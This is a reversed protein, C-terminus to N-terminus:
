EVELMWCNTAVAGLLWLAVLRHHGDHIKHVGDHYVVNPNPYDPKEVKGISGLHWLVTERSVYRQTAVLNEIPFLSLTSGAWAETKVKPRSKVTWPVAIMGPEEDPIGDLIAVATDIADRRIKVLSGSVTKQGGWHPVLQCGCNPHIPPEEILEDLKHPGSLELGACEDCVTPGHSTLWDVWFVPQGTAPDVRVPGGAEPTVTAQQERFVDATAATNAVNMETAAIMEDRAADFVIEDTATLVEDRTWREDRARNLVGAFLVLRTRLMSQVRGALTAVAALWLVGPVFLLGARSEDGPEWEDWDMDDPRILKRQRVMALAAAQGMWGAEVYLDALVQELGAADLLEVNRDELWVLADDSPDALWRDILDTPDSGLSGVRSRYQAVLRDSVIRSPHNEPFPERTSAKPRVGGAKWVTALDRAARADVAVLRNLVDAVDAPVHDFQFARNKEIRAWKIFTVLESKVREDLNDALDDAATDAQPDGENQESTPKVRERDFRDGEQQDADFTVTEFAAALPVVHRGQVVMPADAEAFGFLPMGMETRVENWTKQGSFLEIQRRQAMSSADDETGDAFVFTLDDPTGLFRQSLQNLLDIVWLMLPRMGLTEASNAEGEQHGAGGLGSQPTFGIQSPLVGFHGCISKVLYEDFLNSYKAEAVRPVVPDFGNPLLRMRRRAELNGALADNFVQEYGRLLEPNAGFEMDSKMFLDPMVGDTFETRYWHLRKLYLDVLSLCREVPSLGYPSFPRRTRPAYVLDDATFEGDSEPAATFEGRPFGWLIQQFAPQPPLPRSGRADLLPKITAGDLIELSWLHKSDVTKNPYISLADIVLVEELLMGLWEHFSMGNIRDPSKWFAKARAIDDRYKERMIQAAKVAGVGQESMVHTVADECISIDWDQGTIAGKVVEINKRVIDAQDAIERLVRFPITRQEVLQLNWAVPYEWRRPDARGDERPQNILAPILPMAPPFPINALNPDRPLPEARTGSQPSLAAAQQETVTTTGPPLLVKAIRDRFGM